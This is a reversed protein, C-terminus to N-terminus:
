SKGAYRRAFISVWIASYAGISLGFGVLPGWFLGPEERLRVWLPGPELHLFAIGILFGGAVGVALGM